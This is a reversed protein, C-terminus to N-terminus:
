MHKVSEVGIPTLTKDDYSYVCPIKASKRRFKPERIYDLSFYGNTGDSGEEYLYRGIVSPFMAIMNKAFFSADDKLQVFIILIGGNKVLQEAFHKYLKDTEAYNDPLLWDIITVANKEIEINEPSFHICWKFDQEKLGLSLAISVFRSGSELSVYYPQKGQQVLQKIINLSIHTKGVKQQGGIVIMDGNRFCAYDDFYPMKFDIVKGEEVFTDKWEARKILHYNRKKPYLFGEKVLYKIAKEIKQKGEAGYEGLAERIDKSNAEEVIKIYQLIKLALEQEDFNQYKDLSGVINSLEKDPLPPKCFNKNVIGLVFTTQVINLEKRLIGGMRLLFNTRNGENVPQLNLSALSDLKIDEKIRESFTKLNPFTINKKIYEKLKDPMKIPVINNIRRIVGDVTSPYIVCQGGNNEIDINKDVIRTKSLEEEYLYFYHGAGKNTKQYLTNGLDNKIEEPIEGDFDIITINSAKGTKVGINLGDNLWDKWEKIDKHVKETWAKEIPYKGNKVIPVLDFGLSEYFKLTNDIDENFEIDLNLLTNLYKYIELDSIEKKDEEVKRIIHLLNGKFNCKFCKVLNTNPIINCCVQGSKCIPCTFIPTKGRTEIKFGIVKLQLYDVIKSLIISEKNEM